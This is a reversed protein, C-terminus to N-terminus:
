PTEATVRTNMRQHYGWYAVGFGSITLGIAIAYQHTVALYSGALLAFLPVLVMTVICYGGVLSIIGWYGAEATDMETLKDTLRM